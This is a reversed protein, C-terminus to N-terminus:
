AWRPPRFAPEVGDLPLERLSEALVLTRALDDRVEPSTGERSLQEGQASLGPGSAEQEAGPPM